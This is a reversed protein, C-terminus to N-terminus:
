NFKIKSFIAKNETRLPVRRPLVKLTLTFPESTPPLCAHDNCAQYALKGSLSITRSSVSKPIRLLLGIPVEGEYVSLPVDSFSFKLPRGKPYIISEVAAQKSGQFEVKTPILYDLTPHHDNIHFGVTVHGVVAAKATTGAHVGNTALVAQAKVVQPVEQGSAACALAGAVAAAALVALSSRRNTM